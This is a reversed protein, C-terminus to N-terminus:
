KSSLSKIDIFRRLNNHDTFILIKYKCDKLYHRCIKFAEVIALLKGNHIEYRTKIPIM